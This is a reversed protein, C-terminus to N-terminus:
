DRKIFVLAIMKKKKLNGFCRIRWVWISGLQTCCSLSILEIKFLGQLLQIGICGVM